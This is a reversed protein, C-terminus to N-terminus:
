DKVEIPDPYLINDPKCPDPIEVVVKYRTAGGLKEPPNVYPFIEGVSRTWPFVDFYIEVKM